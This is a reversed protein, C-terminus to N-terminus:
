PNAPRRRRPQVNVEPAVMIPPSPAYETAPMRMSGASWSRRYSQAPKPLVRNAPPEIEYRGSYPRGGLSPFYHRAPRYPPPAAYASPIVTVAVAGPRYLGFDGEVVGWTADIGDIIVPIDPRGPIVLNPQHDARAGAALCCGLCLSLLPVRM